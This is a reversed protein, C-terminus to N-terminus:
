LRQSKTLRGENSHECDIMPRNAPLPSLQNQLLADWTSQHSKKRKARWSSNTKLVEKLEDALTADDLEKWVEKILRKVQKCEKLAMEKDRLAMERDKLEAEQSCLDQKPRTLQPDGFTDESKGAIAALTERTKAEKM